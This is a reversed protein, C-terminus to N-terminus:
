APDFTAADGAPYSTGDHATKKSEIGHCITVRPHRDQGERNIQLSILYGDVASRVSRCCLQFPESPAPVGDSRRM